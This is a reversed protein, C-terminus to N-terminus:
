MQDSAAPNVGLDDILHRLQIPSLDHLVEVAEDGSSDGQMMRVFRMFESFDLVGSRDVDLTRFAADFMAQRQGGDYQMKQMCLKIQQMGLGTTREHGQLQRYTDRLEAGM